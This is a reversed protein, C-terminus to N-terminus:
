YLQSSLNCIQFHVKLSFLRGLVTDQLYGGPFGILAKGPSDLIHNRRMVGVAVLPHDSGGHTRVQIEM